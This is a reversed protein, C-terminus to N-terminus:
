KIDFDKKYKEWVVANRYHVKQIGHDICRKFYKFRDKIDRGKRDKWNTQKVFEINYDVIYRMALENFVKNDLEMFYDNFQKFQEDEFSLVDALVLRYTYYNVEYGLKKLKERAELLEM